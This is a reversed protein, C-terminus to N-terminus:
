SYKKLAQIKCKEYRFKQKTKTFSYLYIWLFTNFIICIMWLWILIEMYTVSYVKISKQYNRQEEGKPRDHIHMIIGTVM